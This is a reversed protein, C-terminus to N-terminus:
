AEDGTGTGSPASAHPGGTADEPPTDGASPPPSAARTEEAKGGGAADVLAAVQDKMRHLLRRAWAFEIALIGLGIPIVVFAPGPTLIFVLGILLVTLGVVLVILRRVTRLAFVLLETAGNLAGDWLDGLTVSSANSADRSTAAGTPEAENSSDTRAEDPAADPTRCQKGPPAPPRQDTPSADM